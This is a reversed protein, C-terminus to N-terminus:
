SIHILVIYPYIVKDGSKFSEAKIGADPTIAIGPSTMQGFVDDVKGIKNKNQLYIARM